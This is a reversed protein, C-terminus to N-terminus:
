PLRVENIKSEELCRKLVSRSLHNYNTVFDLATIKWTHYRDAPPAVTIPKESLVTRLAKTISDIDLKKVVLGESKSQVHFPNNGLSSVIMRTGCCRAQMAAKGYTEYITTLLCSVHATQLHPAIQDALMSGHLVVGPIKKMEEVSMFDNVRGYIEQDGILHLEAYPFEVKIRKFAEILLDIGKIKTLAGVYTIKGPIREVTKSINFVDSDVGSQLLRINKTPIGYEEFESTVAEKMAETMVWIEDALAANKLREAGMKGLALTRLLLVLASSSNIIKRLSSVRSTSGEVIVLNKDMCYLPLAAELTDEPVGILQTNAEQVTDRFNGEHLITTKYGWKSIHKSIYLNSNTHRYKGVPSCYKGDWRQVFLSSFVPIEELSIFEYDYLNVDENLVRNLYKCAIKESYDDYDPSSGINKKINKYKEEVSVKKGSIDTKDVINLLLQPVTVCNNAIDLTFDVSNHRIHHAILPEDVYFFLRRSSISHGSELKLVQSLLLNESVIKQLVKPCDHYFIAIYTEILDKQRVGRMKGFEEARSLLSYIHLYIRKNDKIYSDRYLDLLNRVSIIPFTSGIKQVAPHFEM